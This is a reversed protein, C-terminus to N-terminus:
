QDIETGQELRADITAVDAAEIYQKAKEIRGKYEAWTNETDEWPTADAGTLRDLVAKVNKTINLIQFSLPRMDEIIRAPLYDNTPDAGTTAAHAEAVDLIHSLTNLGKSFTSIVHSSVSITAM